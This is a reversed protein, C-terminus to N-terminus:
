PWFHLVHKRWLSFTGHSHFCWVRISAKAALCGFVILGQAFMYPRLDLGQKLLQYMLAVSAAIIEDSDDVVAPNWGCFLGGAGEPGNEPIPACSCFQVGNVQGMLTWWLIWVFWPFM